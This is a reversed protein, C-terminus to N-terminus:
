PVAPSTGALRPFHERLATELAGAIIAHARANPHQDNLNVILDRGEMGRFAPTLDVLPLGLRACEAALAQNIARYPYTRKGAVALDPVNIVLADISRTRATAAYEALWARDRDWVRREEPTGAVFGNRAEVIRREADAVSWRFKGWRWLASWRALGGRPTVADNVAGILRDVLPGMVQAQDADNVYFALVAVNPSWLLGRNAFLSVENSTDYMPVGANLVEWGRGLSRELRRAFTDEEYVGQGFTVSDGLMLVRRVGAPKEGQQEPGRLGLGNIRAEICWPYPFERRAERVYGHLDTPYCMLYSSNPIQVFGIVPDPETNHRSKTLRFSPRDEALYRAAPALAPWRAVGEALAVCMLALTATFALKRRGSM